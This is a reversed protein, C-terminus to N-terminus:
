SSLTSADGRGLLGAAVGWEGGVGVDGGGVGM